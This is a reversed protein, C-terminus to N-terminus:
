AIGIPEEPVIVTVAEPGPNPGTVFVTVRVPEFTLSSKVVDAWIMLVVEGIWVLLVVVILM